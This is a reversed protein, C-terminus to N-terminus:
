PQHILAIYRYYEHPNYVNIFWCVYSPPPVVKYSTPPISHYYYYHHNINITLIHNINITLIHNIITLSLGAQHNWGVGRFFIFEDTPIIFNGVSHVFLGFTWFIWFDHPGIAAHFAATRRSSSRWSPIGTPSMGPTARRALVRVYLLGRPPTFSWWPTYFEIDTIVWISQHSEMYWKDPTISVVVTNVLLDHFIQTPRNSMCFSMTLDPPKIPVYCM